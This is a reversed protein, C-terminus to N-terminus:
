FINSRCLPCSSSHSSNFWKYLCGSHFRNKCTKCPKKPLSGDMVSIISYCIACEVQGDFHLTVNKKFLALGDLIHGSQFWLVQQVALMWSRWRREDVGVTKVDRMEIKHLPWDAPIKLKMELQHEDVTYSATVEHVATAVKVVFNEDTLDAASDATRVHALERAIIVPSFHQATCAGVAASLSRDKCDQIWSAVLSPITSLARFYLHGAFAPIAFTTGPEYLSVFFEDVAWMDLKFARALGQDLQLMHIINPMLYTDVVGLSRLQEIYGMRVKLSAGQFLDFALMWALLYGFVSQEDQEVDEADIVRSLLDVLESPLEAKFADETDVASEIVLHETRKAAAGQLVQYAMRQVSEATDTVLHCMKSLTDHEILTPPLDQVIQLLLERCASRPASIQASGAIPKSAMERVLVLIGREREQWDARLSKATTALDQVVLILRLTRALTTLTGDDELSCTEVNNEMVDFVLGWHAGPVTQLVPAIHTFLLPLLSELDEASGDDEDNVARPGPLIPVVSDPDPAMAVLQRVMPLARSASTGQLGAAVENRFRDLRPADPACQAIAALIALSTEPASKQSARALAVWSDAEEKSVDEFVHDLIAAVMRAQRPSDNALARRLADVVFSKVPSLDKPVRGDALARASQSRWTTYDDMDTILAYAVIGEAREAALALGGSELARADFLASSRGPVSMFDRAEIAWALLHRLIWPQRRVLARLAPSPLEPLLAVIRAYSSFGHADYLAAIPSADEYTSPPPITDFLVGLSSDIPQAPLADLRKHLTDSPPLVTLVASSQDDDASATPLLGLIAIIDSPRAWVFVNELLEALRATVVDHVASARGESLTKYLGKADGFMSVMHETGKGRSVLHTALWFNRSMMQVDDGPLVRSIALGLPRLVDVCLGLVVLDDQSITQVLNDVAVALKRAIEGVLSAFKTASLFCEHLTLVRSLIEGKEKETPADELLEDAVDDLWGEIPPREEAGVVAQEAIRILIRLDQRTPSPAAAELLLPWAVVAGRLKMYAILLDPAARLLPVMHSFVLADVRQGIVGDDLSFLVPGFVELLCTMATISGAATDSDSSATLANETNAVLASVTSSCVERARAAKADDTLHDFLAKLTTIVLRTHTTLGQSLRETLLSFGAEFFPGSLGVLGERVIAQAFMAEKTSLGGSAQEDWARGFQERVLGELAQDNDGSVGPAGDRHLSSWRRVCFVLCEMVSGVLKQQALLRQQALGKSSLSPLASWFATFLEALLAMDASPFLVTTPITSLMLMVTPYGQVPSGCCALGLFTLLLQFPPDDAGQPAAGKTEADEDSGEDDSEHAPSAPEWTEPYEKLFSLLPGWLVNQVNTDVETLGSRLILRSIGPESKFLDKRTKVAAQLLTWGARRVAPQDQGFSNPDTSLCSWLQEAHLLEVLEESDSPMNEIIWRLSGLAGVRLRARMDEAAETEAPDTTTVAQEANFAGEPDFLARRPLPLTNSIDVAIATNDWEAGEATLKVCATWTRTSTSAVIRDVDHAAMCLAGVIRERQDPDAIENVHMITHERIDQTQLLSAHLSVAQVRIRRSSHLLLGPLHHLWVPVSALVAAHAEEDTACKDIWNARLDELAKIKTPWAKKNLNRLVVILQPPLSSLLGSTELPDRQAPQPKTPPIYQKQRPQTKLDKREKKTLKAGQKSPPAQPPSAGGKTGAKRANKKRTGSSASSKTPKPM